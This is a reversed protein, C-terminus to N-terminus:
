WARDAVTTQLESIASRFEQYSGTRKSFEDANDVGLFRLTRELPIPLSSGNPDEWEPCNLHTWDRIGYKSMAGFRDWVRNMADIEADSLEDDDSDVRARALTVNHGEKDAILSSWEDAEIGGGILDYTVSNVPGHRMSVHLDNSITLGCEALFERDALYILKVLKLVPMLGGEKDCFFAAIQAAKRSNFGNKMREVYAIGCSIDIGQMHM